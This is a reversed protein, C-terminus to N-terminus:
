QFVTFDFAEILTQQAKRIWLDKKYWSSRGSSSIRSFRLPVRFSAFDWQWDLSSIQNWLNDQLEWIVSIKLICDNSTCNSNYFASFTTNNLDSVRRWVKSWFTIDSCAWISDCIDNSEIFSWAISNLTDNPSTLQWNFVDYSAWNFFRENTSTNFDFNPVRIVFDVNNWNGVLNNWVELQIPEWVRVRNFDTNFESNWNSAPPLLTWSSFTNYSYSIPWSFWSGDESVLSPRTAFFYMWDEIWSLAQYYSKSSNEVWKIDRSFPVMYSVLFIIILSTVLSIFMALVISFWKKNKIM